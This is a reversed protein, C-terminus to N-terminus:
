GPPPPREPQDPPQGLGERLDKEIENARQREFLLIFVAVAVLVAVTLVVGLVDVNGGGADSNRYGATGSAV